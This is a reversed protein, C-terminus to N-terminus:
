LWNKHDIICAETCVMRIEHTSRRAQGLRRRARLGCKDYCHSQHDCAKLSTKPACAACIRLSQLFISSLISPSTALNFMSFWLLRLHLLAIVARACLQPWQNGWQSAGEQQWWPQRTEQQAYRKKGWTETCKLGKGQDSIQNWDESRGFDISM